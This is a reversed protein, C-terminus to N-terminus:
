RRKHQQSERELANIESVISDASKNWENKKENHHNKHNKMIEDALAYLERCAKDIRSKLSANNSNAYKNKLNTIIKGYESINYKPVVFGISQFFNWRNELTPCIVKDASVPVFEVKTKNAPATDQEPAAEGDMFAPDKILRDLARLMTNAVDGGTNSDAASCELAALDDYGALEYAESVLRKLSVCLKNLMSYDQEDYVDAVATRVDGLMKQGETEAKAPVAALIAGFALFLYKRMISNDEQKENDQSSLDPLELIM